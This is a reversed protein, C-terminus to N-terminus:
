SYMALNYSTCTATPRLITAIKLTASSLFLCPLDVGVGPPMEFNIIRNWLLHPYQTVSCAFKFPFYLVASPADDLRSPTRRPLSLLVSCSSRCAACLNLQHPVASNHIPTLPLLASASPQLQPQVQTCPSCWGTPASIIHATYIDV